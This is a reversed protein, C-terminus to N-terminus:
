YKLCNKKDNIIIKLLLIHVYVDLPFVPQLLLLWVDRWYRYFIAVVEHNKLELTYLVPEHFAWAGLPEQLYAILPALVILLNALEDIVDISLKVWLPAKTVWSHIEKLHQRPNIRADKTIVLVNIHLIAWM